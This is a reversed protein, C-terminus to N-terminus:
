AAERVMEIARKKAAVRRTVGEAGAPWTAPDVGARASMSASRDSVFGARPADVGATFRCHLREDESDYLFLACGSWPVLKSLKSSILAMTDSIGLSTGM